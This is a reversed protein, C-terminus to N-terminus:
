LTEHCFGSDNIHQPKTITYLYTVHGIHLQACNGNWTTSKECFRSKKNKSVKEETAKKYCWGVLLAADDSLNVTFVLPCCTITFTHAHQAAVHSIAVYLKVSALLTYFM